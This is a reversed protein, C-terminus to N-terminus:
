RASTPSETSASASRAFAYAAAPALLCCVWFVSTATGGVSWLYSQVFAAVAGAVAAGVCGAVAAGGRRAVVLPLAIAALLLLLGAVGLQLLAGIYSNEPLSSYFSYFRDVFVRQETGFGHGLVPREGAQHLAGKWAQVRGSASLLHRHPRAQGSAFHSGVDIELPLTLDANRPVDLGHGPRASSPTPPLSSPLTTIGLALVMVVGLAAVAIVRRRGARVVFLLPVLSGAAAAILAGRSQAAVTVGVLLAGVAAAALRAPRSRLWLALWVCVPVAVGYLIPDTNPNEGIGRFRAPYSVTAPEVALRSKIAYTLLGAVAVAAAGLVVGFLIALVRAPRTASGVALAAAAVLLLGLSAARELTLRPAVSWATSLAALAVLAAAPAFVAWLRRPQREALAASGLALGCLVGLAIWRAPRGIVLLAIVKSSGWAFAFVTVAVALGLLRDIWDDRDQRRV